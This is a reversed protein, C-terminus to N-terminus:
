KFTGLWYSTLKGQRNASARRTTTWGSALISPTTTGIL